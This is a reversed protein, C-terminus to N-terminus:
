PRRRLRRRETVHPHHRHDDDLSRPQAGTPGADQVVRHTADSPINKPDIPPPELVASTREFHRRDVLRYRLRFLRPLAAWIVSREPGTAADLYWCVAFGRRSGTTTAILVQEAATWGSTTCRCSLHTDLRAGASGRDLLLARLRVAADEAARRAAVREASSAAAVRRMTTAAQDLVGDLADAQGGDLSPGTGRLCARPGVDVDQLGRIADVAADLWRCLAAATRHDDASLRGLVQLFRASDRRQAREAATLLARHSPPCAEHDTVARVGLSAVHSREPRVHVTAWRGQRHSPVRKSVPLIGRGTADSQDPGQGTM